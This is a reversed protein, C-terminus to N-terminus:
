DRWDTAGVFEVFVETSRGVGREPLLLGIDDFPLKEPPEMICLEGVQQLQQVVSYPVLTVMRKAKLLAWTLSSVRATVPYQAFERGLREQVRDLTIRALSGVNTPLWLERSWDVWSTHRKFSSQFITHCAIVYRDPLTSIFRHGTPLVVPRRCAVLDVEQNALLTSWVTADTELVTIQINPHLESFGPLAKTLFGSIAGTIAAIRVMGEGQRKLGYVTESTDSVAQLIRRAMPILAKGAATPQVGRALREFLPIELLSELDALLQTVAPQSLNMAEAARKLSGLEVLLVILQLHRIRAKAQLRIALVSANTSIM